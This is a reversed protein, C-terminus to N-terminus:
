PLSFRKLPLIEPHSDSETIEIFSDVPLGIFTQTKGTVPWSVELREVTGSKGLGITQRFPNGGFSGGSNVTRYVSRKEGHEKVIVRLRAGIASRNTQNGVLKVSIFHNGFGPNEFLCDTYKDGPWAGGMQVYVDQDGDNDLDAFSVGHGKQLHGFGGAMTVNTFSTGSNNLFMVNPRIESFQINGTALYCDLFGDNNLDGFNAGMPQAPYGLRTSNTVDKFSGNGDNKYLRGQETSVGSTLIGVPGSSCSAYIDLNGDNNYDWFWVPFGFHPKSVGVKKAVEAFTGDGNNRYLLNPPKPGSIANLLNSYGTSVYIDPYRDGDFDGWVAGMAFIQSDTGAKTAVDTFTGDGNNHFLQCPAPMDTTAENGIFLDVNGDLDYDGWCATKTPFYYEGLGAEHLRDTFTGDGNNHLLSNPHQGASALWAGRLVLIDLNGDNDYDAHVMNLGGLFGTLGALETWDDFTGNGNNHFYKMQGKTDWTSTVIDLNGDQDFDDIIVGGCLNFTDLGLKPAVNEFRPFEIDTEFFDPSILHEKPVHRPYENLTMYAINLLWKAANKIELVKRSELDSPLERLLGKFCEIAKRSGETNKHIGTGRIPLICSEGTHRQCCNQTEGKRLYAVGLHFRTEAAYQVNPDGSEVQSLVGNSVAERFDITPLLSCAYELRKIGREVNGLRLHSLGSAYSLRWREVSETNRSFAASLGKEFVEADSKNLYPHQSDTADAITKLFALVREHGSNTQDPKEIWNFLELVLILIIFMLVCLIALM